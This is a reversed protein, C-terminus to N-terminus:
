YKEGKYVALHWAGKVRVWVMSCDESVWLDRYKVSPMNDEPYDDMHFLTAPVIEEVEAVRGTIRNFLGKIFDV